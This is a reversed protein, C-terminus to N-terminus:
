KKCRIRSNKKVSHSDVVEYHASEELTDKRFSSIRSSAAAAATSAALVGQAEKNRREKRGQKKVERLDSLYQSVLVADWKPKRLTEIEQPLVKIM